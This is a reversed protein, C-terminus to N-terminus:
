TTVYRFNLSSHLFQPQFVTNSQHHHNSPSQISSIQLQTPSKLLPFSAHFSTPPSKHNTVTPISLSTPQPDFRTDRDRRKCTINRAVLISIMVNVRM